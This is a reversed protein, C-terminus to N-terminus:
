NAGALVLMGNALSISADRRGLMELFMEKPSVEAIAINIADAQMDIRFFSHMIARQRAIRDHM